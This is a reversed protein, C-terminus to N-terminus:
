QLRELRVSITRDIRQFPLDMNPLLATPHEAVVQLEVVDPVADADTSPYSWTLQMSGERRYNPILAFLQAEAEAESVSALGGGARLRAADFAAATVVSTAYLNLVLNVAFLILVLFITVGVLTSLLGTGNEEGLRQGGAVDVTLSWADSSRSSTRSSTKAPM